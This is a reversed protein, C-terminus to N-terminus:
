MEMRVLMQTFNFHIEDPAYSDGCILRHEYAGSRTCSSKLHMILECPECRVGVGETHICSTTRSEYPCHLLSSETGSCHVDILWVPGNSGVFDISSYISADALFYQTHILLRTVVIM